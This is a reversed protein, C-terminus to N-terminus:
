LHSGVQRDAPRRLPHAHRAIPRFNQPVARGHQSETEDIMGALAEPSIQWQHAEHLLMRHLIQGPMGAVPYGMSALWAVIRTSIHIRAEM